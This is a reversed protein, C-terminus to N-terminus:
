KTKVSEVTKRALLSTLVFATVGLILLVAAIVFLWRNNGTNPLLAMSTAVNSVGLLKVKGYMDEGRTFLIARFGLWFEIGLTMICSFHRRTFLM